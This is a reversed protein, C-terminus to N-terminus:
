SGAEERPDPAEGGAAGEPEGDRLSSGGAAEREMARALEDLLRLTAIADDEDLKEIAFGAHVIVYQGVSAGEVLAVSIERELGGVEARAMDGRIELIRMPVGLCM